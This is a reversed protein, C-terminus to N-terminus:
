VYAHLTSTQRLLKAEDFVTKGVKQLGNFDAVIVAMWIVIPISHRKDLQATLVRGADVIWLNQAPMVHEHHDAIKSLM